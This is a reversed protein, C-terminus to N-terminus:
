NLKKAAKNQEKVKHTMHEATKQSLDYEDQM